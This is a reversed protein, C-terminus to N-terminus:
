RSTSYLALSEGKIRLNNDGEIKEPLLTGPGNWKSESSDLLKRWKASPLPGEVIIDKKSLNFLAIIHSEDKWRRLWIMKDDLDARVKLSEKDLSSLAPIDKRLRILEKYFDLLVKNRGKERKSWDLRSQIFTDSSQPDPPEGEWNFTEFEKKRGQRVGEILNPDSHSVFYLFPSTEGYEEGMFVLPIYPSLFVIGAALKLSEFSVLSSLREGKMRNGIQDHNQAFVILRDAPLERSSSGHNRKRFLSYQGSYVFGEKMSQVLDETMGFDSYYGKDESTLLTHVAHHFDDCWLGDLGYGGNEKPIAASPDNLDSEAILYFKRGAEQSYEEVREALELLFHRASMDYIGHIADLRLADIHFHKFWYLANEFYYNRVENSYPGDFNIADGWPTRYRDTFYPGFDRLYNGEPGLHNYVVDLIVAMGRNHCEDVLLKLGDPGGYSNQVAFPYVGDYGWNREGPFQAVPMIEVANIGTEGIDDLRNIVADFTGEDTFTGIHIEYLIMTSLPIGLWRSDQWDFARHDIVQSAKHVGQPQFYSAPDPRDRNGDLCYAYLTGPSIDDVVAKWYGHDEKQMPILRESPTLIKLSISNVLPAWVRFNCSNDHKYKVGIM